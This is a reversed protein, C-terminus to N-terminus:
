QKPNRKKKKNKAAKGTPPEEAGTGCYPNADTQWWTYLAPLGRFREEEDLGYGVLRVDPVEYGLYHIPLPEAQGVTKHLLVALRVSIPDLTHLWQYLLHLSHGSDMLADAVIIHRGRLLDQDAPSLLPPVDPASRSVFVVPMASEMARLLDVGFLIGGKMVILLVAEESPPLVALEAQIQRAMARVGQKLHAADILLTLHDFPTSM